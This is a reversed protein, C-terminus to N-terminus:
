ILDSRFSWHSLTCPMNPKGPLIDPYQILIATLGKPHEVNEWWRLMTELYDDSKLGGLTTPYTSLACLIFVEPCYIWLETLITHARLKPGNKGISGRDLKVITTCKQIARSRETTLPYFKDSFGNRASECVDILKQNNSISMNSLPSLSELPLSTSALHFLTFHLSTFHLSIFHTSTFQPSNLHPSTPGPPTPYNTGMLYETENQPRAVLQARMVKQLERSGFATNSIWDFDRTRRPGSGKM